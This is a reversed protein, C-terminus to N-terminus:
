VVIGRKEYKQKIIKLLGLATKIDNEKLPDTEDRNWVWKFWAWIDDQFEEYDKMKRKGFRNINLYWRWLSTLRINKAPTFDVIFGRVCDEVLHWAQNYQGGAWVLKHEKSEKDIFEAAKWCLNKTLKDNSETKPKGLPDLHLYKGGANVVISYVPDSPIIAEVAKDVDKHWNM